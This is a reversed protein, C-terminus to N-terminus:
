TWRCEGTSAVQSSSGLDNISASIRELIPYGPLCRVRLGDTGDSQFPLVTSAYRWFRWSAGLVSQCTQKPDLCFAEDAVLLM